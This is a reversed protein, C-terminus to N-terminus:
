RAAGGRVEQVGRSFSTTKPEWIYFIFQVDESRRLREFEKEVLPVQPGLCRGQGSSCVGAGQALSGLLEEVGSSGRSLAFSAVDLGDPDERVWQWASIEVVLPVMVQLPLVRPQSLLFWM